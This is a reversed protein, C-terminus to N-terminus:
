PLTTWLFYSPFLDEGGGGVRWCLPPKGARSIRIELGQDRVNGIETTGLNLRAGSDGFLKSFYCTGPGQEATELESPVPLLGLVPM